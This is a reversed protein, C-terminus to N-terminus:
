KIKGKDIVMTFRGRYMKVMNRNNYIYYEASDSGKGEVKYAYESSIYISQTERSPQLTQNTKFKFSGGANLDKIDYYTTISIDSKQNSKITLSFETDKKCSVFILLTFLILINKM